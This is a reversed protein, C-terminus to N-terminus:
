RAAGDLAVVIVEGAVKAAVLSRAQELSYAYIVFLPKPFLRAPYRSFSPSRNRTKCQRAGTAPQDDTFGAVWRAHLLVL